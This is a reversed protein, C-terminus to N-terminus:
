LPLDEAFSSAQQNNTAVKDIDAGYPQTKASALPWFM